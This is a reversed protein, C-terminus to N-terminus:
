LAVNSAAYAFINGVLIGIGAAVAVIAAIMLAGQLGTFRPLDSSEDVAFSDTDAKVHRSLTRMENELRAADARTAMALVSDVRCTFSTHYRDIGRSEESLTLVAPARSVSFSYLEAIRRGRKWQGPATEHWGRSALFARAEPNQSVAAQAEFSGCLVV